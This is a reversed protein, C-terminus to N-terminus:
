LKFDFIKKKLFDAGLLNIGQFMNDNQVCLLPINFCSLVHTYQTNETDLAKITDLLSKQVYSRPAGTDIIFTGVIGKTDRKDNKLFLSTYIRNEGYWGFNVKFGTESICKQEDKHYPFQTKTDCKSLHLNMDRINHLLVDKTSSKHEEDGVLTTFVTSDDEIYKSIETSTDTVGLIKGKAYAIYKGKYQKLMEERNEWYEDRNVKLAELNTKQRKEWIKSIETIDSESIQHGKKEQM